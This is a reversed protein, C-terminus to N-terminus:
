KGVRISLLDYATGAPTRKIRHEAYLKDFLFSISEKKNCFVKEKNSWYILCNAQLLKDEQSKATGEFLFYQLMDSWEDQSAIDSLKVKKAGESLAKYTNIILSGDFMEREACEILAVARASVVTSSHGTGSKVQIAYTGVKVDFKCKTGHGPSYVKEAGKGIEVMEGNYSKIKFSGNKSLETELYRELEKGANRRTTM